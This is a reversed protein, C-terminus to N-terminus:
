YVQDVNIVSVHLWQNFNSIGLEKALFNGQSSDVAVELQHVDSPM